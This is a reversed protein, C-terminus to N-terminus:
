AVKFNMSKRNYEDCQVACVCSQLRVIYHRGAYRLRKCGYAYETNQIGDCKIKVLRIIVSSYKERFKLFDLRHFLIRLYTMLGHM